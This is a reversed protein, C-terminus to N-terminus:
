YEGVVTGIEWEVNMETHMLLKNSRQMYICSECWSKVKHLACASFKQSLQGSVESLDLGKPYMLVRTSQKENYGMQLIKGTNGV